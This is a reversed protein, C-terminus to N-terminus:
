PYWPFCAAAAGAAAAECAPNLLGTESCVRIAVGTLAACSLDDPDVGAVGGVVNGIGELLGPYEQPPVNENIGFLACSAAYDPIFNPYGGVGSYAFFGNMAARSHHYRFEAGQVGWRNYASLAAWDISGLNVGQWLGLGSQQFRVIRACAEGSLACVAMAIATDSTCENFQGSFPDTFCLGTPDVYRLPNNIVYGYRDFGQPNALGSAPVTPLGGNGGAIVSGAKVPKPTCNICM